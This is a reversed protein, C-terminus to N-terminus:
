RAIRRLLREAEAKHQPDLVDGVPLQLIRELQARAEERRGQDLYIQALELRHFIYDPRLAVARELHFSASDWSARSLFDAGLFLQAFLRTFGSLRKAEAHWAGLVHHAGDHDPNLALARAAADYVMRGFRVREKGSRTRALRGLAQALMFYGDAGTSDARIAKEAYDRAVLYLSDRLRSQDDPIQKAIDIWAGAAKWLAPYFTEDLALAMEYHLLAGQPQLRASLSDGMAIHHEIEERKNQQAYAEPVAAGIAGAAISPYFLLHLIARNM